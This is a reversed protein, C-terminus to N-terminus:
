GETARTGTATIHDSKGCCESCGCYATALVQLTKKCTSSDPTEPCNAKEAEHKAKLDERTPMTDYRSILEFEARPIQHATLPQNYPASVNALSLALIAAAILQKM